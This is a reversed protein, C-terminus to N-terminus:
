IWEKIAKVLNDNECPSQTALRFYHEDLGRFNSADRILIQYKDILFDKLDSAKKESLKCLFFHTNTPLVTLGEINKLAHMFRRTESLYTSLEMYSNQGLLYKGATIALANVSWPQRYATIKKILEERATIYGLRLGPIAYSKTLSHLVIVNEHSINEEATFTFKRDTFAEYSQDIIFLVSPHEFIYNDLFKKDYASGTPNNPNCLWILDVENGIETLTTAYSLQHKNIRCADEYESFTPTIILSRMGAFAQAILYIAETAGNTVLVHDNKVGNREALLMSLSNADPEPYSHIVNLHGSLYADFAAADFNNCINSSFNSVIKRGHIDDGHGKIM